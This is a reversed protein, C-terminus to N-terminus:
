ANEIRQRQSRLLPFQQLYDKLADRIREAGGARGEEILGEGVEMEEDEDLSEEARSTGPVSSQLYENCENFWNQDFSKDVQEIINHLTCCAMVVSPVFNVDLDIKKYLCRWRAKLRGFAREVVVRARSLRVNFSDLEPPMNRVRRYVKLLWPRLPYATDGVMLYPIDQGNIRRTAQVYFFFFNQQTFPNLYSPAYKICCLSFLQIKSSSYTSVQPIVNEYTYFIRSNRFVMADHTSGPCKCTVNRFILSCDVIGQLVLSPWGKRNFYDRHGINPPTVPIHCGDVVLIIRPIKCKAEFVSSIEECEEEDPLTIWKPTLIELISEVVLHVYKLVTSRSIGFVDGVVRFEANSALYYLAIALKEEAPIPERKSLQNPKVVLKPQLQQFIHMFTAEKMRFTEIWMHEDANVLFNGWFRRQRLRMWIKRPTRYCSFSATAGFIRASRNRMRNRKRRDKEKMAKLNELALQMNLSQQQICVAATLICTLLIVLQETRSVNM